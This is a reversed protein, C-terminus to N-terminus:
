SPPLRYVIEDVVTISEQDGFVQGQFGENAGGQSRDEGPDTEDADSNPKKFLLGCSIELHGPKGRTM